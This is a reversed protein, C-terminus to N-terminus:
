RQGRRQHALRIEGHEERPLRATAVDLHGELHLGVGGDGDGDASIAPPPPVCLATNHLTSGGLGRGSMVVIAQDATTQAGGGAYIDYSGGNGLHVDSVVLVRM